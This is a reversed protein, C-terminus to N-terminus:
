GEGPDGAEPMEVGDCVFPLQSLLLNTVDEQADREPIPKSILEVTVIRGECVWAAISEGAFGEGPSDAEVRQTGPVSRLFALTSEEDPGFDGSATLLEDKVVLRREGDDFTCRWLPATRRTGPQRPRDVPAPGGLILEPGQQPVGDCAYPGSAEAPVPTLDVPETCGCLLGALLLGSGV